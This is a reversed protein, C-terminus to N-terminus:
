WQKFSNPRQCIFTFLKWYVFTKLICVQSSGRIKFNDVTNILQVFSHFAYHFESASNSLWWTHHQFVLPVAEVGRWPLVLQSDGQQLYHLHEPDLKSFSPQLYPLPSSATGCKCGQQCLKETSYTFSVSSPLGAWKDKQWRKSDATCEAASKQERTFGTFVSIAFPWVRSDTISTCCRPTLPAPKSWPQM